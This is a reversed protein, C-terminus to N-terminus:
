LHVPVIDLLVKAVLEGMFIRAAKLALARIMTRQALVRGDLLGPLWRFNVPIMEDKM